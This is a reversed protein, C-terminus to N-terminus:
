PKAGLECSIWSSTRNACAPRISGGRAYLTAFPPEAYTYVVSEAAAAHGFDRAVRLRFHWDYKSYPQANVQTLYTAAEIYQEEDGLRLDVSLHTWDPPLSDVIRKFDEALAVPRFQLSAVREGSLPAGIM